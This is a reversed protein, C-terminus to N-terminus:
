RARVNDKAADPVGGAVTYMQVFPVSSWAISSIFALQDLAM